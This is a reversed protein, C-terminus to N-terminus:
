EGEPKLLKLGTKEDFIRKGKTYVLEILVIEMVEWVKVGERICGTKTSENRGASIHIHVVPNGDEDPFLTGSTHSQDDSLIYIFYIWTKGKGPKLIDIYVQYDEDDRFLDSRRNGRCMIHYTAGPYWVRKKKPM